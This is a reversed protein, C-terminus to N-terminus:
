SDLMLGVSSVRCSFAPTTTSNGYATAGLADVFIATGATSVPIVEFVMMMMTMKIM